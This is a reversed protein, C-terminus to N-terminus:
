GRRKSKAGAPKRRKAEHVPWVEREWRSGEAEDVLWTKGFKTATLQGAQIDRRLVSTDPAGAREALQTLTLLGM